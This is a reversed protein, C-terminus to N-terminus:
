RRQGKGLYKVAVVAGVLVAAVSIALAPTMAPAAGDSVGCRGGCSGCGGACGLGMSAAPAYFNVPATLKRPDAFAYPRPYYMWGWDNVRDYDGLGNRMYSM